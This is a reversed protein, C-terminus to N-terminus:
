ASSVPRNHAPIIGGLGSSGCLTIGGLGSSGCLTIGGLGSSGCLTIGGLGCSGCLTIGGFGSSDCLTSCILGDDPRRLRVLGSLVCHLIVPIDSDTSQACNWLSNAAEFV